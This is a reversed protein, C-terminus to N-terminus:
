AETIKILGYPRATFRINDVEGFDALRGSDVVRPTIVDTVNFNRQALSTNLLSVEDLVLVISDSVTKADSTVLSATDTVVPVISDSASIGVAKTVTETVVPTITDSATKAITGSKELFQVAETVRPRITDTVARTLGVTARSETVVPRFIENVDIDVDSVPGETVVAIITDTVFKADETKEVKGAFSGYEQGPTASPVLRTFTVTYPRETLPATSKTFAGYRKGPTGALSLRTVKVPAKEGADIQNDRWTALGPTGSLSLFTVAATLIAM